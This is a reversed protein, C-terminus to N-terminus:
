KTGRTNKDGKNSRNPLYFPEHHFFFMWFLKKRFNRRHWGAKIVGFEVYITYIMDRHKFNISYWVHSRNCVYFYIFIYIYIHMWVFYPWKFLIRWSCFGKSTSWSKLGWRGGKTGKKGAEPDDVAGPLRCFFCCRGGRSKQSITPGTIPRTQIYWKNKPFVDRVVLAPGKKVM